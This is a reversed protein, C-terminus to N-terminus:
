AQTAPAKTGGGDLHFPCAHLPSDVPRRIVGLVDDHLAVIDPREWFGNPNKSSTVDTHDAMDAGLYHLMNALLATGSRHMGLVVV